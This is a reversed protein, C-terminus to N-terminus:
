ADPARDPLTYRPRGCGTSTRHEAWMDVDGPGDDDHEPDGAARQAQVAAAHLEGAFDRLAAVCNYPNRTAPSGEGPKTAKVADWIADAYVWLAERAHAQRARDVPDLQVLMAADLEALDDALDILNHQHSSDWADSDTTM